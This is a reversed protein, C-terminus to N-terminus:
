PAGLTLGLGSLTINSQRSGDARVTYKEGAAYVRAPILDDSKAVVNGAGAGLGEFRKVAQQVDGNIQATFEVWGETNAQGVTSTFSVVVVHSKGDGVFSCDIVANGSPTCSMVSPPVTEIPPAPCAELLSAVGLLTVLKLHRIM